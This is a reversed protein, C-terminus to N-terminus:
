FRLYKLFHSYRWNRRFKAVLWAFRSPLYSLMDVLEHKRRLHLEFWFAQDVCFVRSACLVQPKKKQKRRELM